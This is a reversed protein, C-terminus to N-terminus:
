QLRKILMIGQMQMGVPPNGKSLSTREPSVPQKARKRRTQFMSDLMPMM